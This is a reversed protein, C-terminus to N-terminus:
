AHAVHQLRRGEADFAHVKAPDVRVRVTEGVAPLAGAVRSALLGRPTEVYAFADAGLDEVAAVRGEIDGEAALRVADARLGITETGPPVLDGFPGAALLAMAPAGVFGAVFVNAPREYVDRPTGLQEIRGERMVAIRDGLAMAESQDHTVLLTTYAGGRVVSMLELRLALRLPADLRSLPEDLLLIAPECALARALAVRQREGGSLRDARRELLHEVHMRAAAAPVRSRAAARPVGYAINDYASMHPFLADDAFVVGAARREPSEHTVDRGDFSVTGTDPRELGAVIRLLTTKGSGSPGLIVLCERPAVELSVGGLSFPQARANRFTREIGELRLAVARRGSDAHV